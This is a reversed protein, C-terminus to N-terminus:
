PNHRLIICYNTKPFVQRYITHIHQPHNSLNPIDMVDFYERMFSKIKRIKIPSIENRKQVQVKGIESKKRLMDVLKPNDRRITVGSYKITIKQDYLLRAIVSAIDIERWGYPKKQYRTQIDAMSTPLNKRQQM